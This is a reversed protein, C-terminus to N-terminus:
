KDFRLFSPGNEPRGARNKAHPANKRKFWREATKPVELVLHCKRSIKLEKKELSLKWSKNSSIKRSSRVKCSYKYSRTYLDSINYIDSQHLITKHSCLYQLFNRWTLVTINSGAVKTGVQNLNLINSHPINRSIKFLSTALTASLYSM